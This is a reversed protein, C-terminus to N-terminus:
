LIDVNEQIVNKVYDYEKAIKEKFEEETFDDYLNAGGEVLCDYIIMTLLENEKQLKKYRREVEYPFDLHYMVIDIKGDLYSKTM